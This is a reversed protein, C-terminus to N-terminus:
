RQFDRGNPSRQPLRRKPVSHKANSEKLLAAETWMRALDLLQDRLEATEAEVAQRACERSYQWYKEAESPM